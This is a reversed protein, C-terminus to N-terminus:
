GGSAGDEAQRFALLNGDPDRITFECLRCAAAIPEMTEEDVPGTTTESEIEVGAARIADRLAVLAPVHLDVMGLGVAREPTAVSPEQVGIQVGDRGFTGLSPPDGGEAIWEFGLKGCYFAEAAAYSRVVLRPVVRWSM